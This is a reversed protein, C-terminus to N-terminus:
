ITISFLGKSYSVIAKSTHMLLNFLRNNKVCVHAKVVMTKEKNTIAVLQQPHLNVVQEILSKEM